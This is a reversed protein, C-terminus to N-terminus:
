TTIQTVSGAMGFYNEVRFRIRSGADVAVSGAPILGNADTTVVALDAAGAVDYIVVDTSAVAVLVGNEDRLM